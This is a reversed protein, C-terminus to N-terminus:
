RAFATLEKFDRETKTYRVGSADRQRPMKKDANVKKMVDGATIRGLAGTRNHKANFDTIAGDKIVSSVSEGREVRRAAQDLLSVRRDKIASTVDLKANNALYYTSEREPAFGAARLMIDGATFDEAPVIVRGSRDTMGESSFRHARLLDAPWKGGFQALKEVGKNWQGTEFFHRADLLGVAMNAPAGAVNVMAQGVTNKSNGMTGSFKAMPFPSAIDGTGIRKSLTVGFLTPIGDTLVM